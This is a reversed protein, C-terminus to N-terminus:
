RVEKDNMNKLVDEDTMVTRQAFQLSIKDDLAKICRDINIIADSYVVVNVVESVKGNTKSASKSNAPSPKTISDVFLFCIKCPAHSEFSGINNNKM